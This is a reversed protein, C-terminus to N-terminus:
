QVYCSHGRLIERAKLPTCSGPEPAPIFVMELKGKENSVPMYSGVRETKLGHAKLQGEIRKAAMVGPEDPDLWLLVRQPRCAAIFSEIDTSLKSGLLAVAVYGLAPTLVDFIGEVLIMVPWMQARHQFFWYKSKDVGTPAMWGKQGPEISRSMMMPPKNFPSCCPVYIRKSTALIGVYEATKRSVGRGALYAAAEYREYAAIFENDDPYRNQPAPAEFETGEDAPFWKYFEQIGRIHFKCSFCQGASKVLSWSFKKKCKPCPIIYERKGAAWVGGRPLMM